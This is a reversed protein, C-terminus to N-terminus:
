IFILLSPHIQEHVLMMLDEPPAKINVLYSLDLLANQIKDIAAKNIDNTPFQKSSNEFIM